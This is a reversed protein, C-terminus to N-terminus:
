AASRFYENFESYTFNKYKYTSNFIKYVVPYRFSTPIIMYEYLENKKFNVFGDNYNKICRCKM